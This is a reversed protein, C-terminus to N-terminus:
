SVLDSPEVHRSRLLVKWAGSQVLEGRQNRLKVDFQVLGGGARPMAKLGSVRLQAHVSDGIFVPRSFKCTMERFALVTGDFLGLRSILGSTVTLGLLGHAVRKGFPGMSASIADTHLPNYDGSLGAFATVDAETITRRPTVTEQGVELDEFYAHAREIGM